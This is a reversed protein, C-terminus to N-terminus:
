TYIVEKIEVWLFIDLGIAVIVLKDIWTGGWLKSQITAIYEETGGEVQKLHFTFFSFHIICKTPATAYALIHPLEGEIFFFSVVGFPLRKKIQNSLLLNM